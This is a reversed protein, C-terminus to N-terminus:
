CREEIITRCGRPPELSGESPEANDRGEGAVPAALNPWRHISALSDDDEEEM